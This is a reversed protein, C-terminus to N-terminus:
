RDEGASTGPASTGPASTGPASTGPAVWSGAGVLEGESPRAAAVRTAIGRMRQDHEATATREGYWIEAFLEAAETLDASAGPLVRGAEVALEHATRGPRNDVLDRAVLGAVVGRLRERVAEAWRGEAAYADARTEHETASRTPTVPDTKRRVSANRGPLGFRWILGAVVVVVLLVFILLGIKGGPGSAQARDLLHDITDLIWDIVRQLLSPKEDQYIQKSLEKAAEEAAPQRPVPELPTM